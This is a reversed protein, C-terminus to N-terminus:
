FQSFFDWTTKPVWSQGQGPDKHDWLHGGSETCWRVPYEPMVTKNIMANTLDVVLQKKLM